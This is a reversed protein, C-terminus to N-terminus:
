PHEPKDHEVVLYTPEFELLVVMKTGCDCEHGFKCDEPLDILHDPSVFQEKGCHPCYFDAKSM